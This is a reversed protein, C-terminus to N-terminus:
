SIEKGPEERDITGNNYNIGHQHPVHPHMKANGHNTYDIDLYPEGEKNYYRETVLGHKNSKRFVSNPAGTEPVSHANSNIVTEVKGVRTSGASNYSTGNTHTSNNPRLSAYLGSRGSGMELDRETAYRHGIKLNYLRYM